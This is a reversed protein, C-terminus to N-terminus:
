KPPTTGVPRLAMRAQADDEATGTFISAAALIHSRMIAEAWREDGHRIAEVLNQHDSSSRLINGQDFKTFSRVLFGLDMLNLAIDAMRRNGAIRLIEAHFARNQESIKPVDRTPMQSLQKMTDCYSQLVAVDEATARRAALGAAMSELHARIDFVERVDGQSWGKVLAGAHPLVEVFGESALRQLAERVPTRSVGFQEALAGETLRDGVKHAGVSIQNRVQEYVRLSATKSDSTKIHAM